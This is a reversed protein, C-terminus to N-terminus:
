VLLFGNFTDGGSIEWAQNIRPALVGPPRGMNKWVVTGDPTTMGLIQMFAFPMLMTWTVGGDITKGNLVQSFPPVISGSTGPPSLTVSFVQQINNNLDRIKDGVNYITNAKWYPYSTGATVVQQVFGNPDLISDGFAPSGSFGFPQGFGWIKNVPWGNVPALGTRPTSPLLDPALWLQPPFPESEVLQVFIRLQDHIGQPNSVWSYALSVVQGVNAPNFFYTGVGNIVYLMYENPGPPNSISATFQATWHTTDIPLDGIPPPNPPSSPTKVFYYSGLYSVADPYSYQTSADWVPLNNAGPELIVGFNEDFPTQSAIAVYNTASYLGFGWPGSGYKGSTATIVQREDSIITDTDSILIDINEDSGFVTALELGVHAPKGLDIAGYLTQTIAQLQILNQIDEFPNLGGVNISVSIANRDSQDYFGQGILTYLEVVTIHLGTYAFIIAELAKVTAGGQYAQILEVLMTRYALDSQTAQPYINSIFLPDAWRRRIDPPTLFQPNKAVQDYAYYYEIKALEIAVARLIEGFISNDNRPTYYNATGQLLSNFLSDEFPLLDERSRLYLNDAQQTPVSM